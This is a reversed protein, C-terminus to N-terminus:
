ISAIPLHLDQPNAGQLSGLNVPLLVVYFMHQAGKPSEIEKRPKMEKFFNRSEGTEGM